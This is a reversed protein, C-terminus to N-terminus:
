KDLVAAIRDRYPQGNIDYGLFVHDPHGNGPAYPNIVNDNTVDINTTVDAGGPIIQGMFASDPLSSFGGGNREYINIASDVFAGRIRTAMRQTGVPDLMGIHLSFGNSATLTNKEVRSDDVFSEVTRPVSWGGWSYGVIGISKFPADCDNIEGNKDTDLQKILYEVANPVDTSNFVKAAKATLTKGWADTIGQTFGLFGIKIVTNGQPDNGNPVFYGCYLSFGDVYGAPDLSGNRNEYGSASPATANVGAWLGPALLTLLLFPLWRRM